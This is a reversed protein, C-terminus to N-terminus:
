ATSGAEHRPLVGFVDVWQPDDLLEVLSLGNTIVYKDFLNGSSDTITVTYTTKEMTHGEM